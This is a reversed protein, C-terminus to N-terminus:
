PADLVRRIFSDKGASYEGGTSVGEALVAQKIAVYEAVLAPDARLRDRFRLQEAVEPADAAIVHVHLRFTTGDHDITGIRVPRSEPFAGPLEHRQFGLGDLLDRATALCGPPYLLM